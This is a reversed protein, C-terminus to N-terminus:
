CPYWRAVLFLKDEKFLFHIVFDIDNESEKIKILTLNDGLGFDDNNVITKNKYGLPFLRSFDSITTNNSFCINNYTLALSDTLFISEAIISDGSLQFRSNDIFAIKYEDQFVGYCNDYDIIISDFDGLDSTFNKKNTQLSVGNLTANSWNFIENPADKNDSLLDTENNKETQTNNKQYNKCSLTAFLVFILVINKKM